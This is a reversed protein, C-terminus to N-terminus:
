IHGKGIQLIFKFDKIELIERLLKKNEAEEDQMSIKFANTKEAINKKQKEIIKLAREEATIVLKIKDKKILGAKKRM